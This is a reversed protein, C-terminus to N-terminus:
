EKIEKINEICKLLSFKIEPYKKNLNNLLNEINNHKNLTRYKIHKIKSFEILEEDTVTKFLKIIKNNNKINFNPKFFKFLFLNCEDDLSWQIVEKVNKGNKKVIKIPSKIIKKIFYLSLSDKILLKDNKKILKNIRINKRIRKEIIRTFCNECLPKLHPINVKAKNNCKYCKM